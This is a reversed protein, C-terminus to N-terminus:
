ILVIALNTINEDSELKKLIELKTEIILVYISTEIYQIRTYIYIWKMFTDLMLELNFEIEM